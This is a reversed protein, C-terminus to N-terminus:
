SKYYVSKIILYDGNCVYRSLGIGECDHEIILLFSTM